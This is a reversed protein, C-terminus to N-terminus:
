HHQFYTYSKLFLTGDTWPDAFSCVLFEDVTQFLDEWRPFPVRILKHCSTRISKYFRYIVSAYVIYHKVTTKQYWIVCWLIWSVHCQWYNISILARAQACCFELPPQLVLKLIHAPVPTLLAHGVRDCFLWSLISSNTGDSDHWHIRYWLELTM